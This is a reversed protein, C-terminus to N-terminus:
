LHKIRRWYSPFLPPDSLFRYRDSTFLRIHIHMKPSCVQKDWWWTGTNMETYIRENYMNCIKVPEWLM